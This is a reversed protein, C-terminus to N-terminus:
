AGGRGARSSRGRAGPLPRPLGPPPAAPRRLGQSGPGAPRRSPLCRSVEAPGHSRSASAAGPRPEQNRAAGQARWCRPGPRAPGSRETRKTERVELVELRGLTGPPGPNPAARRPDLGPGARGWGRGWFRCLSGLSRLGPAWVSLGQSQSTFRPACRMRAAERRRTKPTKRVTSAGMRVRGAPTCSPARLATLPPCHGRLCDSRCLSVGHERALPWTLNLGM